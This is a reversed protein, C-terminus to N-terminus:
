SQEHTVEEFSTIMLHGSSMVFSLRYHKQREPLAHTGAYRALVGRIDVQNNRSNVQMRTEFFVSSVDAQRIVKAEQHFVSVLYPRVTPAVFFLLLKHQQDVTEPTVNLRLSLFSLTMMRLYAADAQQMSLSFPRNFFLPTVITRENKWASWALIGVLINTVMSLLLLSGMGTLALKYIRFSSIRTSLKM